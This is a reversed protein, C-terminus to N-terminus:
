AGMLVDKMCIMESQVAGNSAAVCECAECKGCVWSFWRLEIASYRFTLNASTRHYRDDEGHIGGCTSSNQSVHLYVTVSLQSFALLPM